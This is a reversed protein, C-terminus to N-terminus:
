QEVIDRHRKDGWLVLLDSIFLLHNKIAIVVAFAFASADGGGCLCCM